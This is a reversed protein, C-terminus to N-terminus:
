ARTSIVSANSARAKTKWDYPRLEEPHSRLYALVRHRKQAGRGEHEESDSALGPMAEGIRAFISRWRAKVASFSVGLEAALESDTAARLAALLLQQDSDRLRLVPERFSFIVNGISAPMLKVSERTMLHITRELEPFEAIPQYVVSRHAFERAPEYVTEHIIRRIRYGALCEAFSSAMTTQLDQREAPSLIEDLWNGCLVLVEVGDGSNARAVEDRTSLVPQGSHISAIVRSNVDPRPNAIEADAFASSVFVCAAFGILRQGQIIPSSELVASNFFPGSFLHGWADMCAKMGVLADGRDREQISLGPEIDAWVAPRWTIPM